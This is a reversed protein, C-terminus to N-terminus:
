TNNRLAEEPHRELMPVHKYAAAHFVIQPHESAFLREMSQGHRIDSIYPYLCASHKHSHLSEVLDFLGTENNDLAIVRAPEYHLLQHCLESGISGAAGTVLVIQGKLAVHAESAELPVVDRELLKALDLDSLGKVHTQM